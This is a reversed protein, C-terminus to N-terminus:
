INYYQMHRVILCKVRDNYDYKSMRVVWLEATLLVDHLRRKPRHTIGRTATLMEKRSGPV